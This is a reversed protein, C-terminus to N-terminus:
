RDDMVLFQEHEFKVSYPPFNDVCYDKMEVPSLFMFYGYGGRDIVIDPVLHTEQPLVFVDFLFKM